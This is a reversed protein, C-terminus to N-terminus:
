LNPGDKIPGTWHPGPFASRTAARWGLIACWRVAAAVSMYKPVIRFRPERLRGADHERLPRLARLLGKAMGKVTVTSRYGHASYARRRMRSSGLLRM